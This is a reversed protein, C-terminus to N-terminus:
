CHKGLNHYRRSGQDGKCGPQTGIASGYRSAVLWALLDAVGHVLPQRIIM